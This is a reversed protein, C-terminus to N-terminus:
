SEIGIQVDNLSNMLQNKKELVLLFDNEVKSRLGSHPGLDM